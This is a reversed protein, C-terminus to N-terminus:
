TLTIVVDSPKGPEIQEAQEAELRTGAKQAVVRFVRRGPAIEGLTLTKLKTRTNETGDVYVIAEGDFGGAVTLKVMVPKEAARAQARKDAVQKLEARQAKLQTEVETLRTQSLNGLETLSAKFEERWTEGEGAAISDLQVCYDQALAALAARAEAESIGGAKTKQLLKLQEFQFQTWLNRISVIVGIHRFYGAAAASSREVFSIVAMVAYLVLVVILLFADFNEFPPPKKSIPPAIRMVTALATLLLSGAGLYILWSRSANVWSGQERLNNYYGAREDTLQKVKTTLIEVYKDFDTEGALASADLKIPNFTNGTAPFGEMAAGKSKDHQGATGSGTTAGATSDNM